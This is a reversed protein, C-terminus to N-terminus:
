IPIIHTSWDIPCDADASLHMDVGSGCKDESYFYDVEIAITKQQFQCLTEAFAPSYTLCPLSPSFPSISLTQDYLADAQIQVTDTQINDRMETAAQARSLARQAAPIESGTISSVKREAFTKSHLSYEESSKYTSESDDFDDWETSNLIGLGDLIKNTSTNEHLAGNPWQGSLGHGNHLRKYLEQVGATLQLQNRELMQVYRNMTLRSSPRRMPTNDM